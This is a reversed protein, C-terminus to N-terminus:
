GLKFKALGKFCMGLLLLGHRFREIKINGYTRPGYRVPLETIKLGQKAAGFLLEFDGFPDFDGFYSRAQKIKQYSERTFAKTGCLTDSVPQNLLWSFIYGFIENAYFNLLRMSDRELPYVLRTGNIFEGRSEALALYFKSLDEPPVTCDADLIMLIDANAAEFGKRVADSKGLKLMRNEKIINEKATEQDQRNIQHILRINLKGKYQTIMENIKEVTGDTSCGDVFIVEALSDMPSLRRLLPEINGAENRCPVIVACSMKKEDLPVERAVLYEVLGLRWIFPLKALVRNFFWSLIPINLPLLLGKGKNIVEYGNLYLLNSIDNLSLWNQYNRPMRLGLKEALRLLPEWNGNYYVIIVRSAPLTVRRLGRLVKWIDSFLGLAGCIVVYDFKEKLQLDEADQVLFEFRPFRRNALEVMRSSLDIGVGRSPKLKNLLEGTSSGIDLVSSEEPIFFKLIRLVENHYYYSGKRWIDRKQAVADFYQIIEEKNM